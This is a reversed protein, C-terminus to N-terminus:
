GDGVYAGVSNWTLRLVYTGERFEIERLTEM